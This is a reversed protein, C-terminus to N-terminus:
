QKGMKQQKKEELLLCAELDECWHITLFSSISVYLAVILLLNLILIFLIIFSLIFHSAFIRLVHVIDYYKIM